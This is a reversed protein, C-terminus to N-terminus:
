VMELNEKVRSKEHPAFISLFFSMFIMDKIM